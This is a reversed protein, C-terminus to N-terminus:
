ELEIVAMGFIGVEDATFSILRPSEKRFAVPRLATLNGCYLVSRVKMGAPVLAEIKLNRAPTITGDLTVDYNVLHVLMRGRDQSIMSTIEVYPAKGAIRTLRGPLLRRTEDAVSELTQRLAPDIRNRTYGEPIDAFLDAM